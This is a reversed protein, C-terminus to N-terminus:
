KDLAFQFDKKSNAAWRAKQAWKLPQSFFMNTEIVILPHRNNDQDNQKTHLKLPMKFEQGIFYTRTTWLYSPKATLRIRSIVDDQWTLTAEINVKQTELPRSGRGEAM